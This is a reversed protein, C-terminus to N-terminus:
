KDSFNKWRKELSSEGRARGVEIGLEWMKVRRGESGFCGNANYCVECGCGGIVWVELAECSVGVKLNM